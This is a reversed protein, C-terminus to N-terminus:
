LFFVMGLYEVVNFKAPDFYIHNESKTRNYLIYLKQLFTIGFRINLDLVDHEKLINNELYTHLEEPVKTTNFLERTM